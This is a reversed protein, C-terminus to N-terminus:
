QYLCTEIHAFLSIIIIITLFTSTGHVKICLYALPWLPLNLKYPNILWCYADYLKDRTAPSSRMVVPDIALRRVRVGSLNHMYYLIVFIIECDM